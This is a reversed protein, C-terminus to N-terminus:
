KNTTARRWWYCLYGLKLLTSKRKKPPPPNIKCVDFILKRELQTKVSIDHTVLRKNLNLILFVELASAIHFSLNEEVAKQRKIM